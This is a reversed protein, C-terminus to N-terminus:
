ALLVLNLHLFHCFYDSSSSSLWVDHVDESMSLVGATEFSRALIAPPTAYVLNSVNQSPCDFLCSARLFDIHRGVRIPSPPSM